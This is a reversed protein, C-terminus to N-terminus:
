RNPYVDHYIERPVGNEDTDVNFWVLYGVKEENEAYTDRFLKYQVDDEVDIPVIMPFQSTNEDASFTVVYPEWDIDIVAGPRNMWGYFGGNSLKRALEDTYTERTEDYYGMEKWIDGVFVHTAIGRTFKGQYKDKIRTLYNENLLYHSDWGACKYDFVFAFDDQTVDDLNVAELEYEVKEDSSEDGESSGEILFKATSKESNESSGLMFKRDIEQGYESIVRGRYDSFQDSLTAAFGLAALHRANLVKFGAFISTFGGGILLAPRWYLKVFNMATASYARVTDKKRDSEDYEVKQENSLEIAAHIEDMKNNHEELVDSAKLTKRCADVTGVLVLGSGACVAIKPGYKVCIDKAVGLSHKFTSMFSM